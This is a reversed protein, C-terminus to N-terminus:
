GSYSITNRLLRAPVPFPALKPKEPFIGEPSNELLDAPRRGIKELVETRHSGLNLGDM